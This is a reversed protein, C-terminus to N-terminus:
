KPKNTGVCDKDGLLSYMVGNQQVYVTKQCRQCVAQYKGSQDPLPDFTSLDHGSLQANVQIKLITDNISPKAIM